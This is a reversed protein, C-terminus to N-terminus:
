KDLYSLKNDRAYIHDTSQNSDFDVFALSAVIRDYGPNPNSAKHIGNADLVIVDGINGTFYKKEYQNLVEDQFRSREYSYYEWNNKNSGVCYALPGNEIEVRSLYVLVKFYNFLGDHHWLFSGTEEALPTSHYLRLLKKPSSFGRSHNILNEIFSDKYLKILSDPIPDPYFTQVSDAEKANKNLLQQLDEVEEQSFSFYAPLHLVGDNKLTEILASNSVLFENDPLFLKKRKQVIKDFRNKELKSVIRDVWKRNALFNRINEGYNLIMPSIHKFYNQNENM